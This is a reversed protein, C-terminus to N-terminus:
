KLPSVAARAYLLQSPLMTDILEGENEYGLQALFGLDFAANHIVLPADELFALFSDAVAAFLPKGALFERSLGHVARAESPVDREPDLYTHFERGSPIRNILEIYGIEILRHGANPDLGTTETDLVIERLV